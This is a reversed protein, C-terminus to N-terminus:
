LTLFPSLIHHCEVFLTQFLNYNIFYKLFIYIKAFVLTQLFKKTLFLSNYYRNPNGHGYSLAKFSLESNDMLYLNVRRETVKAYKRHYGSIGCGIDLINLDKNSFEKLILSDLLNSEPIIDSEYSVFIKKYNFSRIFLIILNFRNKTMTNFRNIIKSNTKQIDTRQILILFSISINLVYNKFRM